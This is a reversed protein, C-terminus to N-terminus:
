LTPRKEECSTGVRNNVDNNSEEGPNDTDIVSIVPSTSPRSRSEEHFNPVINNRTEPTSDSNKLPIPESTAGIIKLSSSSSSNSRTTKLEHEVPSVPEESDNERFLKRLDSGLKADIPSIKSDVSVTLALSDPPKRTRTTNALESFAIVVENTTWGDSNPSCSGRSTTQTTKPKTADEMSHWRHPRTISTGQAIASLSNAPIIRHPFRPSGRIKERSSSQSASTQPPLSFNVKPESSEKRRLGALSLRRDEESTINIIPGSGCRTHPSQTGQADVQCTSAAKAGPVLGAIYGMHVRLASAVGTFSATSTKRSSPRSGFLSFLRQFVGLRNPGETERRRHLKYLDALSQRPDGPELDPQSSFASSDASPWSARPIVPPLVSLLLLPLGGGISPNRQPISASSSARSPEVPEQALQKELRALELELQAMERRYVRNQVEVRYQLERRDDTVFRRTNCEIKLGLSQVVPDAREGALINALQPLFLLALTATTSALILATITVFALTARDPMLNALVVVIGSTIVVFYVSMGIYQSDNLAPIKVHRTEWAMYVGVVLLLGKYVYLASLWGNTHQSRCVEVQPQYVVGRDQPSIELTLNQLHRQMPDLIVWLTVVVVDIMLLMCILFILQTDQLLKNKVVGSRSRTFIRHVRYTKTFMSGFALSFGASLLYVRAKCVTPYYGDSDPLTADDLGLLIVAGYVLGCGVAIMNNLRPSSLKISKHKRFHLNFALFALALTVGVSAICTIALFAAPAVTVMRLRFVRRAAPVQGGPWRTAECGPCNMILKEDEPTYIAIRKIDRGHMQYFATIGVRDADDFSVPGSVGIFRLNKLQKLLLKALDKRTHTYQSMSENRRNLLVETEALALAMAWVADYTQGAFKSHTVGTNNLESIFKKSTLGSASTENGVVTPHSKVIILGDLTQLLQSFSCEGRNSVHLQWWDGTIKLSDITDGPLIWAYDGGHMGLKWAECFVRQALRPSFSGIIIRTDLEKLTRLQEKYDNEAFTITATCTINAQELETVLDNVALSYMDGTQSLATVTDWGFHKILAIRAPNHSSDPAVTRLFLPFENSDSLAPATSGFSVQIVNWYPVIKALTETVESCATGLLFPMLHKKRTSYLAHFFRDVAVGSDCKTDNYILRLRFRKLINLDNVRRVALKAAQLESSGEPRSVTRNTMEFLGLITINIKEVSRASPTTVDIEVSSDFDNRERTANELESDATNLTVAFKEDTSPKISSFNSLRKGSLTGPLWSEDYIDNRGRDGETTEESRVDEEDVEDVDGDDAGDDNTKRHLVDRSPSKPLDPLVTNPYWTSTEELVDEKHPGFHRRDFKEVQPPVPPSKHNIKVPFKQSGEFGTFPAESDVDIVTDSDNGPTMSIDNVRALRDGDGYGQDGSSEEARGFKTRRIVSIDDSSCAANHCNAGHIEVEDLNLPSDVYELHVDTRNEIESIGGPEAQNEISATGIDFDDAVADIAIAGVNNSGNANVSDTFENRIGNIVFGDSERLRDASSESGRAGGNRNDLAYINRRNLHTQRAARFGFSERDSRDDALDDPREAPVNIDHESSRTLAESWRLSRHASYDSTRENARNVPTEAFLNGDNVSTRKGGDFSVEDRNRRSRTPESSHGVSSVERSHLRDISVQILGNEADRDNVSNEALNGVSRRPGSLITSSAENDSDRFQVKDMVARNVEYPTVQITPVDRRKKILDDLWNKANEERQKMSVFNISKSIRWNRAPEDLRDDSKGKPYNSASGSHMQDNINSAFNDDDFYDRRIVSLDFGDRNRRSKLSDSPHDNGTVDSVSQGAMSSAENEHQMWEPILKSAYLDKRESYRRVDLYRPLASLDRSQPRTKEDCSIVTRLSTLGLLLLTLCHRAQLIESSSFLLLLRSFHRRTRVRTM